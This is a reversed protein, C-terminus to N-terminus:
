HQVYSVIKKVVSDTDYGSTMCRLRGMAAIRQRAEDNALYFRAKSLMEEKNSFFEAEVGEKFFEQHETTREALLFTGAAPIEFTRTTHKEPYNKSLLGLSIKFSALAAVYDEKWVSGNVTFSADVRKRNAPKQWQDGFIVVKEIGTMGNIQKLYHPECRGVFGVEAFYRQSPQPNKYRVPCYSQPVHIVNRAGLNAYLNLEFDKTTAVHDYLAISQIFHHSRFYLIQPDPTYHIAFGCNKRLFEVTEPFIWVGKDVWACSFGGSQSVFNRIDNNLKQLLFRPHLRCQISGVIRHKSQYPPVNFPIVTHGNRELARM